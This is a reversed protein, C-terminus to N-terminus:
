LPSDGLYTNLEHPNARLETLVDLFDDLFAKPTLAYENHYFSYTEEIHKVLHAHAEMEHRTIIYGYGLRDLEILHKCCWKDLTFYHLSLIWEDSPV